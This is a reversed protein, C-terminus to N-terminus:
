QIREVDIREQASGVGDVLAFRDLIEEVVYRNNIFHADVVKMTPGSFWGDSKGIALLVPLRRSGIDAPLQVCMKPGVPTPVAYVQVPKWPTKDDGTIRFASPPISPAQDCPSAPLAAQETDTKSVV